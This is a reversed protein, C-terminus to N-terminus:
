INLIIQQISLQIILLISLIKIQLERPHLIVITIFSDNNNKIIKRDLEIKIIIFFCRKYIEDNDNNSYDFFKDLDYVKQLITLCNEFNINMKDYSFSDDSTNYLTINILSNNFNMIKNEPLLFLMERIDDIVNSSLYEPISNLIRQNVFLFFSVIIIIPFSFLLM